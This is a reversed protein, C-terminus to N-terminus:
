IKFGDKLLGKKGKHIVTIIRVNSNLKTHVVVIYRNGVRAYTKYNDREEDYITQTRQILVSAIEQPSVSRLQAMDKAHDTMQIHIVQKPAGRIKPITAIIREIERKLEDDKIKRYRSM